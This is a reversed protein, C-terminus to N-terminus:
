CLGRRSGVRIDHENDFFDGDSVVFSWLRAAIAQNHLKPLGCGSARAIVTLQGISLL